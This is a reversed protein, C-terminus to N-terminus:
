EVFSGVNEKNEETQLISSSDIGLEFALDYKEILTSFITQFHTFQKELAKHDNRLEEYAKLVSTYFEIMAKLREKLKEMIESTKTNFHYDYKSAMFKMLRTTELISKEIAEELEMLEEYNITSM